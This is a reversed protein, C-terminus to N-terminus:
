SETILHLHDRRLLRRQLLRLGPILLHHDPQARQLRVQLGEGVLQGRHLRLEARVRTRAAAVAQSRKDRMRACPAISCTCAFAHACQRESLEAHVHGPKVTDCRARLRQLAHRAAGQAKNCCQESLWHVHKCRVSPTLTRGRTRGHETPRQQRTQRGTCNRGGVMVRRRVSCTAVLM